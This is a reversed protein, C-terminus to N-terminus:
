TSTLTSETRTLWPLLTTKKLIRSPSPAVSGTCMASGSLVAKIFSIPFWRLMLGFVCSVVLLM